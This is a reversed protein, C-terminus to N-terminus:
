GYCVIGGCENGLEDSELDELTWNWGTCILKEHSPLDPLDEM